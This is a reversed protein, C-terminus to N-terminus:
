RGDFRLSPRRRGSAVVSTWPTEGKEQELLLSQIRCAPGGQRFLRCEPQATSIDRTDSEMRTEQGTVHHDARHSPCIFRQLEGQGYRSREARGQRETRRVGREPYRDFEGKTTTKVASGDEVERM